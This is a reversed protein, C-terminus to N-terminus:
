LRLQMFHRTFYMPLASFHEHKEVSLEEAAMYEEFTWTRKAGHQVATENATSLTETEAHTYEIM